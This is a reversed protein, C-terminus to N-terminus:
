VVVPVLNFLEITVMCNFKGASRVEITNGNIVASDFASETFYCCIDEGNGICLVENDAEGKPPFIDVLDFTEGNCRVVNVSNITELLKQLKDKM